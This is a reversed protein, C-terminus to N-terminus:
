SSAKILALDGANIQRAADFMTKFDSIIPTDVLLIAGLRVLFSFCFLVLGFRNINTKKVFYFIGLLLLIFPVLGIKTLPVLFPFLLLIGLLFPIWNLIRKM